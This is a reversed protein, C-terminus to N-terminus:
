VRKLKDLRELETEVARKEEEDIEEQTMIHVSTIDDRSNPCKWESQPRRLLGKIEEFCYIHGSNLRVPDKKNNETFDCSYKGDESPDAGM